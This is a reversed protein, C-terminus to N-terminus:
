RRLDILITGTNPVSLLEGQRIQLEAEARPSDVHLVERHGGSVDELAATAIANRLEEAHATNGVVYILAQAPTNRTDNLSGASPAAPQSPVTGAPNHERVAVGGILASAALAAAASLAIHQTKVRKWASDKHSSIQLNM